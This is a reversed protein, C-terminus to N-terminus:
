KLTGVYKGFLTLVLAEQPKLIKLGCWPIWGVCLWVIGVVLLTVGVAFNDDELLIGGAITAPIAIIYALATLLLVSLGNEKQDILKEDIQNQINVNEM